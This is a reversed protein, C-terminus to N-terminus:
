GRIGQISVPKDNTSSSSNTSAVANDDVTLGQNTPASLAASRAPSNAVFVLATVPMCAM